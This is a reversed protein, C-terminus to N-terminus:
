SIFANWVKSVYMYGGDDRRSERRVDAGEGRRKWPERRNVVDSEIVNIEGRGHVAPLYVTYTFRNRVRRVSSVSM